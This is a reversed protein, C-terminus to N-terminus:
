VIKRTKKGLFRKFDKKELFKKLIIKYDKTM